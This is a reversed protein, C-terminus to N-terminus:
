LGGRLGPLDQESNFLGEADIEAAPVALYGHAAVTM